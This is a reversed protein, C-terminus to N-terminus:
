RNIDSPRKLRLQELDLPKVGLYDYSRYGGYPKFGLKSYVTVAEPTSGLVVSNLVAGEFATRVAEYVIASALGKRRHEKHTEVMHVGGIGNIV